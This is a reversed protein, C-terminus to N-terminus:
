ASRTGAAAHPIGLLSPDCAAYRFGHLDMREDFEHRGIHAAREVLRRRLDRDVADHGAARLRPVITEWAWAGQWAGHHSWRHLLLTDLRRRRLRHLSRFVSADVANRVAKATADVPVDALTDLKTAVQIRDAFNAPLFRGIREESAGYVSATDISTIGADAARALIAGVENDSPVGSNNAIGYNSGLQATGLTLVSHITGDARERFPCRPESGGLSLSTLRDVLQPWGTRVPDRSDAFVRLLLEYDEFTDLTCRM